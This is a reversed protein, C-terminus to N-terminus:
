STLEWLQIGNGEPDTLSAFRGHPYNEVDSVTSGNSRLQVVMKDINAVRFNIMWTKGPPIMDNDTPFPDFVTFGAQQQWPLGGTHQPALDIGLNDRYWQSLAAPDEAVFFFGGIGTVAEMGSSSEATEAYAGATFAMGALSLTGAQSFERRNLLPKERDSM